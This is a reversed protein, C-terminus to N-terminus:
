IDEPSRTWANRGADRRGHLIHAVILVDENVWYYLIHSGAPYSRLGESLEDRSRGLSPTEALTSITERILRTYDERQQRGWEQETYLLIDALESRADDSYIVQLRHSSM